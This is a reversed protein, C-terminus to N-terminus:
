GPILAYFQVNDYVSNKVHFSRKFHKLSLFVIFM